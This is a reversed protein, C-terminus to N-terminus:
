RTTLLNCYLYVPLNDCSCRHNCIAWHNDCNTRYTLQERRSDMRILYLIRRLYPWQNSLNLSRVQGVKSILYCGTNQRSCTSGSPGTSGTGNRRSWTSGLPGKSGTGNRRSWTSGLPGKCGTGNRRFWTCGSPGAFGNAHHLDIRTELSIKGSTRIGLGHCNQIINSVKTKHMYIIMKYITIMNKRSM